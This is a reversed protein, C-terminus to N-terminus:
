HLESGQSDADGPHRDPSFHVAYIKAKLEKIKAKKEAVVEEARKLTAVANSRETREKLEEAQSRAKQRSSGDATLGQAVREDLVRLQAKSNGVMHEAQEVDGELRNVDAAYQEIQIAHRIKALMDVIEDKSASAAVYTQFALQRSDGLGVQYSIGIAIENGKQEEAM